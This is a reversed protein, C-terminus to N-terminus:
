TMITGLKMNKNFGKRKIIKRFTKWAGWSEVYTEATTPLKQEIIQKSSLYILFYIFISPFQKTCKNIKILHYLSKMKLVYCILNNNNVFRSKM